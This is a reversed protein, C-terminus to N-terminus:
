HQLEYVGTREGRYQLLVTDKYTTRVFEVDGDGYIYFVYFARNDWQISRNGFKLEKTAGDDAIALVSVPSIGSATKEGQPIYIMEAALETTPQQFVSISSGPALQQLRRNIYFVNLFANVSGSTVSFDSVTKGKKKEYNGLPAIGIGKIHLSDLFLNLATNKTIIGGSSDLKVWEQAALFVTYRCEPVDASGMNQKEYVKEFCLEEKTGPTCQRKANTLVLSLSDIIGQPIVAATDWACHTTRTEAAIKYAPGAPGQVTLTGTVPITSGTYKGKDYFHEKYLLGHSDWERYVSDRLTVGAIGSAIGYRESRPKGNTNWTKKQVRGNMNREVLLLIGTVDYQAVITDNAQPNYNVYSQAQGNAYWAKSYHIYDNVGPTKAARWYNYEVAILNGKRDWSKSSDPNGREGIWSIHAVSSDAYKSIWQGTEVGRETYHGITVVDSLTDYEYYTGYLGTAANVFYRQLVNKHEDYFAVEGDILGDRYTEQWVLNGNHYGSVLGDKLPEDYEYEDGLKTGIRYSSETARNDYGYNREIMMVNGDANCYYICSSFLQNDYYVSDTAYWAYMGGTTVHFSQRRAAETDNSTFDTIAGNNVEAETKLSGKEDIIKGTYLSKGQYIKVPILDPFADPENRLVTAPYKKKSDYRKLHLEDLTFGAKTQTFAPLSYLLLFFVLLSRM